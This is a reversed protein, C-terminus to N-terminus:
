SEGEVEVNRYNAKGETSVKNDYKIRLLRKNTRTTLECEDTQTKRFNHFFTTESETQRQLYINVCVM